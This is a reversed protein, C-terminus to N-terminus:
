EPYYKDDYKTIFDDITTEVQERFAFYNGLALIVRRVAESHLLCRDEFSVDEDVEDDRGSGILYVQDGGIDAGAIHPHFCCLTAFTELEGSRLHETLLHNVYTECLGSEEGEHGSFEDANKALFIIGSKLDSISVYDGQLLSHITGEHDFFVGGGPVEMTHEAIDETFNHFVEEYDDPSFALLMAELMEYATVKKPEQESM